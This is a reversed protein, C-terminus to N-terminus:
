VIVAVAVPVGVGVNVLRGVSSMSAVAVSDHRRNLSSNGPVGQGHYVVRALYNGNVSILGRLELPKHKIIRDSLQWNMEVNSFYRSSTTNMMLGTQLM